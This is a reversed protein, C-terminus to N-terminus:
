YKTTTLTASLSAEYNPEIIQWVVSSSGASNGYTDTLKVVFPNALTTTITAEQKDGSVTTLFTPTGYTAM